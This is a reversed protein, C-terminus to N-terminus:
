QAELIEVKRSLEQVAAWLVTTLKSYDVQQNIADGDIDVADKEGSVAWPVQADVEHALMGIQRVTEPDEGNAIAEAVDAKFAQVRTPVAMVKALAQTGVDTIEDFTVKLRYDSTTNYATSSGSTTVAGVFGNPNYFTNHYASTTITASSGRRQGSDTFYSGSSAGSSSFDGIELIDVPATNGIGVFGSSSIAMREVDATSFALSNNANNYRVRGADRNAPDGFDIGAVSSSDATVRILGNTAGEVHLNVEPTSTGIGVNGSSDIRMAESTNTYFSLSNSIHDSIIKQIDADDIDGLNLRSQGGTPGIINIAASGVADYVELLESPSTTGIGVNGTLGDIRMRETNYTGFATSGTSRDTKLWNYALGNMNFGLTIDGSSVTSLRAEIDTSPESVEFKTNPSTTGIGVNGLHDIRLKENAGGTHLRIDATSEGATINLAGSSVGLGYLPASGTAFLSLNNILQALTTPIGSYFNGGLDLIAAPTATGIGVNESSDITIATSTANDDIGTSEFGAIVGTMTGGALPLGGLNSLSTSASAVDSLNNAALLDGAGAEDAGKQAVLEWKVAALDTAFVGSTHAVICIYSSGAEEIVDNLAYVTSTVWAGQWEMKAVIAAAASAAAAIVDIGTATADNGTDIADQATQAADAAANSESASAAAASGAAVAANTGANEIDTVAPGVIPEGSGDFAMTKNALSAKAPIYNSFEDGEVTVLARSNQNSIQQALYTLKDLAGELVDPLYAANNILDVPQTEDVERVIVLKEGTALPSGSLPYTVDGGGVDGIGSVSYVSPSLETRVNDTDLHVVTLDATIPITFTYPFVTAVGDGDHSVLNVTNSVTM